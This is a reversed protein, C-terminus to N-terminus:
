HFNVQADDDLLTVLHTQSFDGLSYGLGNKDYNICLINMPIFYGVTKPEKHLKQFVAWLLCDRM